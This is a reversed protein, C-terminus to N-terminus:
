LLDQGIIGDIMVGNANFLGLTIARLDTSGIQPLEMTEGEISLHKLPFSNFTILGAAGAAAISSIKEERGINFKGLLDDNIVTVAGTDVIFQGTVGNITAEMIDHGTLLKDMQVLQYGHQDILEELGMDSLSQASGIVNILCLSLIMNFHYKTLKM